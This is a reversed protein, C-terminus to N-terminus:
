IKGNSTKPSKKGSFPLVMQVDECFSGDPQRYALPTRGVEIFGVKKYLNYAQHNDGMMALDIQLLDEVRALERLLKKFMLEGLGEGRMSHHLSIGLSGRHRTKPDKNTGFNLIGVIKKEFEALILISRPDNAYKEIWKVEDEVTQKRFSEATMLIYPSTEAIESMADILAQAEDVSAPRLIVTKNKKTVVQEAEFHM